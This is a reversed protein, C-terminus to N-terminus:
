SLQDRELDAIRRELAEIRRIEERVVGVLKQNSEVLASEARRARALDPWLLRSFVGRVARLFRSGSTTLTRTPDERAIALARDLPERVELLRRDHDPIEDLRQRIFAATQDLSHRELDSKAREGTARAEAPHDYAYRMLEAAHDLDPEAWEGGAVYPDAGPPIAAPTYRVLYSNRESMFTLNGSYATAIVPKALSMAEAMTLGLGESRHLSVYCDAAAMLADKHEASVFGDLLRVDSRGAVASQLQSMYEPHDAGNVSKIILLPGEGDDFASTFAEVLGIPNKRAFVSYYDFTFLFLYGNPLGLDRRSMTTVPRPELPIPVIRVPKESGAGVAERVFASAVWVEDVLDFAARMEVPFDATEWFWVGIAYRGALLEPGLDDHLKALANANVCIINTNYPADGGGREEFRHEQRHGLRKYTVTATPIGGHEAAAVIKRGVEGLGLEGRFYGIVNVGDPRIM